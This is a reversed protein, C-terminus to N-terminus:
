AAKPQIAALSMKGTTYGSVEVELDLRQSVRGLAAAHHEKLEQSPLYISSLAVRHRAAQPRFLQAAINLVEALNDRMNDSIDNQAAAELAAAAPIRVLAAGLCVAIAPECICASAPEGGDDVYIATVKDTGALEAGIQAVRVKKSLTDSLLEAIREPGPLAVKSRM